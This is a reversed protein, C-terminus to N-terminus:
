GKHYYPFKVNFWCEWSRLSAFPVCSLIIAHSVKRELSGIVIISVDWLIQNANVGYGFAEILSMQILIASIMELVQDLNSCAETQFILSQSWLVCGPSEAAQPCFIVPINIMGKQSNKNTVILVKKMYKFCLKKWLSSILM